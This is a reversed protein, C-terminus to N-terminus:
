FGECGKQWELATCERIVLAPVPPLYLLSTNLIVLFYSSIVCLIHNKVGGGGLHALLFSAGVLATNTSGSLAEGLPSQKGQVLSTWHFERQCPFLLFYIYDWQSLVSRPSHPKQACAQAKGLNNTDLILGGTKSAM